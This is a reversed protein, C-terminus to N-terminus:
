PSASCATTTASACRYRERATRRADDMAPRGVRRVPPRRRLGPLAAPPTDSPAYQTACTACIWATSMRPGRRDARVEPQRLRDVYDAFARQTAPRAASASRVLAQRQPIRRPRQGHGAHSVIWPYCAIDAISYRTAPSSTAATSAAISCATSAIPKARTANSRMRTASRARAHPVLRSQGAMPGLGAVQWVLWQMTEIRTRPDRPSCARRDERRPIAPDRRIRLDAAARRRRRARPRRDRPDQQEALDRPVGAHITRRRSLRVLHCRHAPMTRRARRTRGPVARAEHRQAVQAYYLDIM